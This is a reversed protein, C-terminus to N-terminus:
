AGRRNGNDATDVACGHNGSNAAACAAIARTRADQADSGNSAIAYVKPQDYAINAPYALAVWAYASSSAGLMLLAGILKLLNKM